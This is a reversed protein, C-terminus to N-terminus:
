IDAAPYKGVLMGQFDRKMSEVFNFLADKKIINVQYDQFAKTSLLWDEGDRNLVLLGHIHAEYHKTLRMLAEALADASGYAAGDLACLYTRPPPGDSVVKEVVVNMKSDRYRQELQYAITRKDYQGVSNLEFVNGVLAGSPSVCKEQMEPWIDEISYGSSLSNQVINKLEDKDVIPCSTVKQFAVQGDPFMKRLNAFKKIDVELKESGLRGITIELIGYVSGGLFVGSNAGLFMPASLFNDHIIIDHQNSINGGNVVFGSGFKYKQPLHKAILNRFASEAESGKAAKHAIALRLIEIELGLQRKHIELIEKRDM